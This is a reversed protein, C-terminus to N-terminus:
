EEGDQREARKAQLDELAPNLGGEPIKSDSRSEQFNQKDEANIREDDTRQKYDTSLKDKHIQDPRKSM